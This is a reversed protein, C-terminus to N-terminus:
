ANAPRYLAPAPPWPEPLVVELWAVATAVDGFVLAGVGHLADAYEVFPGDVAKSDSVLAVKQPGGLRVDEAIAHVFEHGLEMKTIATGDILRKYRTDFNPDNWLRQTETGLEWDGIRGCLYVFVCRQEADIVYALPM